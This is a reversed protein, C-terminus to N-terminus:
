HLALPRGPAPDPGPRAARRAGPLRRLGGGHHRGPRRHLLDRPRLRAGEDRFLLPDRARSRQGGPGRPPHRRAGHADGRLRLARRGAGRRRVRAPLAGGRARAAPGDRDVPLLPSTVYVEREAGGVGRALRPGAVGNTAFLAEGPDRDHVARFLELAIPVSAGAYVVAQSPDRFLDRADSAVDGSTDHTDFRVLDAVAVHAAQLARQLEVGQGLGEQLGDYALAVRNIGMGTLWRALAAAELRGAPVLRAFTRRGSPYYKDPEGKDAPQTLGTYTSLPSVQIIGIENTIPISVASAGSDLDGIYAIATPNEAAQHANAASQGPDWVGTKPSTDDLAILGITLRGVRGGADDLALKEGRLVDRGVAAWEGRLPLSTYISLTDSTIRTDSGAGSGCGALVVAAVALLSVARRM